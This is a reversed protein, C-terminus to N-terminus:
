ELSKAMCDENVCCCCSPVDKALLEVVVPLLGNAQDGSKTSEELELRLAISPRLSLVEEREVAVEVVEEDVETAAVERSDHADLKHFTTSSITEPAEEDIM